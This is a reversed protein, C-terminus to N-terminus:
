NKAEAKRYITFGGREPAICLLGKTRERFTRAAAVLMEIQDAWFPGAMAKAGRPVEACQEVGDIEPVDQLITQSM